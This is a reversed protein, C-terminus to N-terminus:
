LVEEGAAWRILDDACDKEVRFLQMRGVGRNLVYFPMGGPAIRATRLVIVLKGIGGM